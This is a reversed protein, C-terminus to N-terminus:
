WFLDRHRLLGAGLIHNDIGLALTHRNEPRQPRPLSVHLVEMGSKRRKPARSAAHWEVWLVGLIKLIL